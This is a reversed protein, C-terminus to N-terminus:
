SGRGATSEVPGEQMRTDICRGTRLKQSGTRREATITCKRLRQDKGNWLRDRVADATKEFAEKRQIGDAALTRLRDRVHKSRQWHGRVKLRM